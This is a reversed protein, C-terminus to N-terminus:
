SVFRKRAGLGILAASAFLLFIWQSPEPTTITPIGEANIPDWFAFEFADNDFGCQAFLDGGSCTFVVGSQDPNLQGGNSTLQILISNIPPGTNAFDLVVTNNAADPGTSFSYPGSEDQSGGGANLRASPDFCGQDGVCFSDPNTFDATDLDAPNPTFNFVQNDDWDTLTITYHGPEVPDAQAWLCSLIGMGVLM